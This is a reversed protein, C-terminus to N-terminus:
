AAKQRAKEMKELHDLWAGSWIHPGIHDLSISGDVLVKGGIARWRYSFAMDEGLYQKNVIMPMFVGVEDRGDATRYTLEPYSQIMRHACARSIMAFAMGVRTPELLGTKPDIRIPMPNGDDDQSGVAFSPPFTKRVGAVAVFDLKYSLLKLVADPPWGQDDDVFLLHTSDSRLFHGLMKSRAFDITSYPMEAWVFEGGLQRIYDQTADKSKVFAGEYKRDSSPSALMLKVGKADYKVLKAGKSEMLALIREAAANMEGGERWRAFAKEDNAWHSNKESTMNDLRGTVMDHEHRVMVSTDCHWCGTLRGLHEWVDDFYFHELGPAFLYGVARVLDGSWVTAGNAKKPAFVGDATSIFNMGNLQEICRTDWHLTEPQLDDALWGVWDANALNEHLAYETAQATASGASVIYIVWNKPLELALYDDRHEAYDTEEVVLIGPTTMVAHRAAKFFQPLRDKAHNRSPLIWFGKSTKPDM